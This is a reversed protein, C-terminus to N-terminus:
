DFQAALVADLQSQRFDVLGDVPVVLFVLLDDLRLRPADGGGATSGCGASLPRVPLRRGFPVVWDACRSRLGAASGWAACGPQRRGAGARSRTALSARRPGTTVPWRRCAPAVASPSDGYTAGMGDFWAGMLSVPVWHGILWRDPEGEVVPDALLVLLVGFGGALLQGAAAGDDFGEAPLQDGHVGLAALRRVM